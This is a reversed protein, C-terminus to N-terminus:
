VPAKAQLRASRSQKRSKELVLPCIALARMFFYVVLFCSACVMSYDFCSETVKEPM